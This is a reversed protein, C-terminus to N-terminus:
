IQAKLYEFLLNLPQGTAGKDYYGISSDYHSTGAIDLHVWPKKQVFKEIFAGGM